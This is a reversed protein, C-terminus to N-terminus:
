GIARSPAMRRFLAVRRRIAQSSFSHAMSTMCPSTGYRNSSFYSSLLQAPATEASEKQTLLRQTLEVSTRARPCSDRPHSEMSSALCAVGWSAAPAIQRKDRTSATPSGIRSSGTIVAGAFAGSLIAAWQSTESTQSAGRAETCVGASLTMRGPVISAEPIFPVQTHDASLIRRDSSARTASRSVSRIVGRLGQGVDVFRAM